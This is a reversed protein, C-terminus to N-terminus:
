RGGTRSGEPLELNEPSPVATPPQTVSPAPPRAPEPQQRTGHALLVWVVAAALGLLVVVAARAPFGWRRVDEAPLAAQRLDGWGVERARADLAARLRSELLERSSDPSRGSAGSM